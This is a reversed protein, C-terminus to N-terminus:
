AKTFACKKLKKKKNLTCWSRQLWIEQVTFCITGQHKSIEPRFLSHLKQREQCAVSCYIIFCVGYFSNKCLIGTDYLTFVVLAKLFGETSSWIDWHCISVGGTNSPAEVLMQSSSDDSFGKYICQFISSVLDLYTKIPEEFESINSM